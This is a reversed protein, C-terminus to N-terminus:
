PVSLAGDQSAERLEPERIEVLEMSAGDCTGEKFTEFVHEFLVGVKSQYIEPTFSRPLGEDLTDEIALRVRGRAPAKQRWNLVLAARVRQLLHRTLDAWRCGRGLAAGRPGRPWEAGEHVVRRIDAFVQANLLEGGVLASTWGM